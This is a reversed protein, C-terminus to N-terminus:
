FIGLIGAVLSVAGVAVALGGCIKVVKESKMKPNKAKMKEYPTILCYLGIGFLCVSFIIDVILKSTEYGM